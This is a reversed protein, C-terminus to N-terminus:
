YTIDTVVIIRIYKSNHPYRRINKGGYELLNQLRAIETESNATRQDLQDIKDTTNDLKGELEVCQCENSFNSNSGKLDYFETVLWKVIEELKDLNNIKEEAEKFTLAKAGLIVGFLLWFLVTTTPM